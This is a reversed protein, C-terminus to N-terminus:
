RGEASSRKRSADDSCSILDPSNSQSDSDRLVLHVVKTGEPIALGAEKLTATPDALLRAKFARDKLARAIV